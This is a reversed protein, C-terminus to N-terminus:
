RKLVKTGSTQCTDGSTDFGLTTLRMVGDSYDGSSTDIGKIIYPPEGPESDPFYYRQTYDSTGSLKYACRDTVECDLAIELTYHETYYLTYDETFETFEFTGTLRSKVETLKEQSNFNITSPGAYVGDDEPDQCGWWTEKGDVIWSGTLDPIECGVQIPVTRTIKCGADIVVNAVGTDEGVRELDYVNGIFSTVKLLDPRSSTVELEYNEKREGNLDFIDVTMTLSGECQIAKREPGFKVGIFISQEQFDWSEVPQGPCDLFMVNGSVSVNSCRNAEEYDAARSVLGIGLCRCPNEVCENELVDELANLVAWRKGPPVHRLMMDVQANRGSATGSETYTFDSETSTVALMIQSVQEPGFLDEPIDPILVNADNDRFFLYPLSNSDPRPEVPFRLTIPVNFAIGDSIVEFGGMFSKKTLGSDLYPQAEGAGILRIQFLTEETVAGPPVDIVLGGKIEFYGGAPTLNVDIVNVDIVNMDIFEPEDYVTGLLWSESMKVFSDFDVQSNNNLDKPTDDAVAASATDIGMGGFVALVSIYLVLIKRSTESQQIMWDFRWVRLGAM